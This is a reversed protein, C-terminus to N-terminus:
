KKFVNNEKLKNKTDPNLFITVNNLCTKQKKTKCIM